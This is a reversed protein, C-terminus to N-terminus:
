GPGGRGCGQGEVDEEGRVAVVVSDTAEEVTHLTSFAPPAVNLKSHFNERECGQNEGEM